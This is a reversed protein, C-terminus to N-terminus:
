CSPSPLAAAGLEEVHCTPWWRGLSFAAIQKWWFHTVPLWQCRSTAIRCPGAARRPWSSPWPPWHWTWFIPKKSWYEPVEKYFYKRTDVLNGKIKKLSSLQTQWSWTKAWRGYKIMVNQNQKEKRHWNLTDKLTYSWTSSIRNLSKAHKM